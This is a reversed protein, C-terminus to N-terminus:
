GIDHEMKFHSGKWARGFIVFPSSYQESVVDVTIYVEFFSHVRPSALKITESIECPSSRSIIIM